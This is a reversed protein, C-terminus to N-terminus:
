QGAYLGCDRLQNGTAPASHSGMACYYVISSGDWGQQRYTDQDVRFMVRETIVGKIPGGEYLNTDGSIPFEYMNGQSKATQCDPSM